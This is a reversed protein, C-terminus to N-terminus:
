YALIALTFLGFQLAIVSIIDILKVKVLFQNSLYTRLGIGPYLRKFMLFVVISPTWSIICKILNQFKESIGQSILVGALVLLVWFVLYTYIYYHKLNKHNKM